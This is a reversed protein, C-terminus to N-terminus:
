PPLSLGMRTKRQRSYSSTGPGLLAFYDQRPLELARRPLDCCSPDPTSTDALDGAPDLAQMCSTWRADSTARMCAEVPRSRSSLSCECFFTLRIPLEASTYFYSLWLVVDPIFGGCLAGIIFRYALFSARGKMSFQAM